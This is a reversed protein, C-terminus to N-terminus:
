PSHEQGQTLDRIQQELGRIQASQAQAHQLLAEREEQLHEVLAFVGDLAQKRRDLEAKDRLGAQVDARNIERQKSAARRSFVGSAGALLGGVVTAVAALAGGLAAWNPPQEDAM